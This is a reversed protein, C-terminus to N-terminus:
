GRRSIEALAEDELLQLQQMLVRYPQRWRAPVQRRVAPLVQPLAEYRLGCRRAGAPLAVWHWQTHMARFVVVAYWHEPWVDVTAVRAEDLARATAAQIVEAPAGWLRLQESM